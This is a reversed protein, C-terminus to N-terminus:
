GWLDDVGAQLGVGVVGQRARLGAAVARHYGEVQSPAQGHCAGEEAAQLQERQSLAQARTRPHHTIANTHTSITHQCQQQVSLSGSNPQRFGRLGGRQCERRDQKNGESVDVSM